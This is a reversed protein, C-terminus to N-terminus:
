TPKGKIQWRETHETNQVYPKMIVNSSFYINLDKIHKKRDVQIYKKHILIVNILNELM